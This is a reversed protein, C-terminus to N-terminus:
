ITHAFYKLQEQTSNQFQKWVEENAIEEDLRELLETLRNWPFAEVSEGLLRVKEALILPAIPGVARTFNFTMDDFFARPVTELGQTDPVIEIASNDSSASLVSKAGNHKAGEAEPEPHDSRYNYRYYDYEPDGPDVGNLVVGLIPARIARLHDVAKRAWNMTTKRAHFVLIVGDSRRSLVAADSVPIAPPSDILVFQFSERLKSVVESMKPSGLLEVPNPPRIGTSMLFLGDIQTAQIAQELNVIGTLVSSLGNRNHLKFRKHCCGKRLDADVILVRHGDQALTTALNLTTITKGDNSSPSTLLVVQPPKEAQSFLFATRITRYSEAIISLPNQTVV